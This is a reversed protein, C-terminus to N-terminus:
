NFIRINFFVHKKNLCIFPTNNLKERFFFINRRNLTSTFKGFTFGMVVSQEGLNDGNNTGDHVDLELLSQGLDEVCEDDLVPLGLEDQLYGEYM